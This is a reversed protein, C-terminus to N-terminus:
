NFNIKINNMFNYLMYLVDVLKINENKDFIKLDDLTEYTGEYTNLAISKWDPM